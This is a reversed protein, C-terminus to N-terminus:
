CVIAGRAAIRRMRVLGPGNAWQNGTALEGNGYRVELSTARVGHHRAVDLPAVVSADQEPRTDCAAGPAAWTPM